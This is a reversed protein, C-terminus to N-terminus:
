FVIHIKDKLYYLFNKLGNKIHNIDVGITLAIAIAAAANKINHDGLLPIQFNKLLKNKKGGM